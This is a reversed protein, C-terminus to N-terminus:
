AVAVSTGVEGFRYQAWSFSGEVMTWLQKGEDKGAAGVGVHIPLLHEFSPHAKRADGRELLGMMKEDREHGPKSEVAEKLAPDFTVAYPMTRGTSMVWMDRLNHVAMGSVVVCVGEDRLKEVARGLKLHQEADEGDFLSAQVIPVEGSEIRKEKDFAVKFVGFVGHDLGRETGIAKIGSEGLVDMVRKALVPSGHHPFKEMYYHKPFGGFDYLLPHTEATNVEITNPQEAQWHASFVVIAKPKVTHLIEAGISQLQAYVPHATDYMINPGGHSLFYVPPRPMITTITTDLRKLIATIPRFHTISALFAPQHSITSHISLALIIASIIPILIRAVPLRSHCM